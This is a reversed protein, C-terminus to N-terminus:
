MWRLRDGQEHGNSDGGRYSQEDLHPLCSIDFAGSSLFGPHVVLLMKTYWGLGTRMDYRRAIDECGGRQDIALM